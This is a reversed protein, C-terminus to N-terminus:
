KLLEPNEYINSIVKEWKSCSFDPLFRIDEIITLKEVIGSKTNDSYKVIDGEYIEKGNKDLLGTFQMLVIEKDDNLSALTGAFVDWTIGWWEDKGLNKNKEDYNLLMRRYKKDWARFKIKRM